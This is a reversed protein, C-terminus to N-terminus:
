KTKKGKASERNTMMFKRDDLMKDTEKIIKDAIDKLSDRVFWLAGSTPDDETQAAMIEIVDTANNIRHALSEVDQARLWTTDIAFDVLHLYNKSM